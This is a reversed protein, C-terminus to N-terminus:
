QEYAPENLPEEDEVYVAPQAKGFGGFKKIILFGVSLLVLIVIMLGVIYFVQNTGPTTQPQPVENPTPDPCDSKQPAPAITICDLTEYRSPIGNCDMIITPCGILDSGETHINEMSLCMDCQLNGENIVTTCPTISFSTFEDITYHTDYSALYNYTMTLDVTNCEPYSIDWCSTPIVPASICNHKIQVSCDYGYYGKDCNCMGFNTCHGENNCNNRCNFLRCNTIDVCPINFEQGVESILSTCNFTGTGCYHITDGVINLDDITACLSCSGYITSQTLNFCMLNGSNPDDKQNQIRTLIDAIPVSTPGYITKGSMSISGTLEFCEKSEIDLCLSGYFTDVCQSLVPQTSQCYCYLFQLVWIFLLISKM